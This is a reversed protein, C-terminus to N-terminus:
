TGESNENGEGLNHNYARMEMAYRKKDEEVMTLYPSRGESNLAAWEVGVKKRIGYAQLDPNEERLRKKNLKEYM